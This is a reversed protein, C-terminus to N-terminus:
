LSLVSPNVCVLFITYIAKELAIEWVQRAGGKQLHNLTDYRQDPANASGRDRTENFAAGWGYSFGNGRDGFVESIDPLYGEPTESAPQQFNIKVSQASALGATLALVVVFSALCSKFSFM